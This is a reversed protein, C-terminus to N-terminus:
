RGNDGYLEERRYTTTPDAPGVPHPSFQLPATPSTIQETEELVIVVSRKGPPIDSPIPVTITHDPNVTGTTTVTRM